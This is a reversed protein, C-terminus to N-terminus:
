WGTKFLIYQAFSTIETGEASMKGFTAGHCTWGPRKTEIWIGDLMPGQKVTAQAVQTPAPTRTADLNIVHLQFSGVGKRTVPSSDEARLEVFAYRSATTEDTIICGLGTVTVQDGTENPFIGIHDAVGNANVLFWNYLAEGNSVSMTTLFREGENVEITLAPGNLTLPHAKDYAEVPPTASTDPYGGSDFGEQSIFSLTTRM